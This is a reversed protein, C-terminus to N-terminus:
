NWLFDPPNIVEVSGDPKLLHVPIPDQSEFDNTLTLMGRLLYGNSWPIFVVDKEIRMQWPRHKIRTEKGSQTSHFVTVWDKGANQWRDWYLFGDTERLPLAAFGPKIQNYGSNPYYNCSIPNIYGSQELAKSQFYFPYETLKSGDNGWAGQLYKRPAQSPLINPPTADIQVYGTAPDVCKVKGKMHRTIEGTILNWILVTDGISVWAPIDPTPKIGTGKPYGTFIIRQNDLWYPQEYGSALGAQEFNILGIVPFRQYDTIVEETAGAFVPLWMGTAFILARWFNLAM